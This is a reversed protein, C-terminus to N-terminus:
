VERAATKLWGRLLCARPSSSDQEDDCRFARAGYPVNGYWVGGWGCDCSAPHNHGNCAMSDERARDCLSNIYAGCSATSPSRIASGPTQESRPVTRRPAAATHLNFHIISVAAAPLVSALRLKGSYSNDSAIEVLTPHLRGGREVTRRDGSVRRPCQLRYEGSLQSVEQPAWTTRTPGSCLLLCQM